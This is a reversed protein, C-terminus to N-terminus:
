RALSFRWSDSRQRPAKDRKSRGFTAWWLGPERSLLNGIWSWGIKEYDDSLGDLVSLENELYSEVSFRFAELPYDGDLGNFKAPLLSAQDLPWFLRNAPRNSITTEVSIDNMIKPIQPYVILRFM